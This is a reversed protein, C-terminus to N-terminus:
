VQSATGVWGRWLAKCMIYMNLSFIDLLGLISKSQLCFHNQNQYVKAGTTDDSTYASYYPLAPRPPLLPALADLRFQELVLSLCWIM